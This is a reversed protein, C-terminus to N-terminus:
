GHQVELLAAEIIKAHSDRIEDQTEQDCTELENGTGCRDTLDDWIQQAALAAVQKIKKAM